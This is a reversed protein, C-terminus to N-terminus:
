LTVNEEVSKVEHLPGRSVVIVALKDSGIVPRHELKPVVVPVDEWIEPGVTLMIVTM